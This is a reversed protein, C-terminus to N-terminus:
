VRKTELEKIVTEANNGVKAVAAEVEGLRKRWQRVSVKDSIDVCNRSPKPRSTIM